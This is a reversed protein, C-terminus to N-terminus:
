ATMEKVRYALAVGDGVPLFTTVFRPDQALRENYERIYAISAADHKPPTALGPVVDGDWLVNDTILLGGPRLLEALRDLMPSYRAKDGDQFIVDFPGAIKHLYQSADGIMVTTRRELGAASFHARARKARAEDRELTILMGEDTLATAIWLGSYGIATGIELVRTANTARVLTHLLEGTSRHVIPLGEARGEEGVRDIEPHAVRGLAAAYDEIPAPTIQSM